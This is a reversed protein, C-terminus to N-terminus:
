DSLSCRLGDSGDRARTENCGATKSHPRVFYFRRRGGGARAHGSGFCSRASFMVDPLGDGGVAFRVLVIAVAMRRGFRYALSEGDERERREADHIPVDARAWEVRQALRKRRFVAHCRVRRVHVADEAEHEPGQNEDNDELVENEDQARVVPTLAAHQGHERQDQLLLGAGLITPSSHNEDDEAHESRREQEAIANDCGRDRHEARHLSQFTAVGRRWGNTTPMAKIM